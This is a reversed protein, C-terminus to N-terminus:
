HVIVDRRVLGDLVTVDKPSDVSVTAYVTRHGFQPKWVQKIVYRGPPMPNEVLEYHGAPMGKDAPVVAIKHPQGIPVGGYAPHGEYFAVTVDKADMGGINHIALMLMVEEGAKPTVPALQLDREWVTVVPKVFYKLCLDDATRLLSQWDVVPKSHDHGYFGIGPMEPAHRRVYRIQDELDYPEVRHPGRGSREYAPDDTGAFGLCMIAYELVDYERAVDIHQDFYAYRSHSNFSPVKYNLYCELLLLDIGSRKPLVQGTYDFPERRVMTAMAPKLNGMVYLATFREPHDKLFMRLGVIPNSEALERNDYGGLEDYVLGGHAKSDNELYAAFQEASVGAKRGWSLSPYIFVGRNRWYEIVDESTYDGKGVFQVMNAWRLERDDRSNRTYWQFYFQRALVPVIKTAEAYAESSAASARVQLEHWGNHEPTWPIRVIGASKAKLSLPKAVIQRDSTVDFVSVVIDDIVTDTTNHVRISVEAVKNQIPYCPHINVDSYRYDSADVVLAQASVQTVQFLAIAIGIYVARWGCLYSYKIM